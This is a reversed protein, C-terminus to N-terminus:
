IQPSFTSITLRPCTLIIFVFSFKGTIRPAYHYPYYWGWSAVGKYYYNMVWQLGEVYTFALKQVDEPKSAELKEQLLVYLMVDTFSVPSILCLVAFCFLLECFLLVKEM